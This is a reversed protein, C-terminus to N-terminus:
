SKLGDFVRGFCADVLSNIAEQHSPKKHNSMELLKERHAIDLDTTPSGNVLLAIQQAARPLFNNCLERTHLSHRRCWKMHRSEKRLVRRVSLDIEIDYAIGKKM